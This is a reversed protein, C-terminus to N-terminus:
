WNSDLFYFYKVDVDVSDFFNVLEIIYLILGVLFELLVMCLRNKVFLICVFCGILVWNFNVLYIFLVFFEVFM